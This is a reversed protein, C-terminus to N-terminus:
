GCLVVSQGMTELVPKCRDFVADEGGVMIALRGSIAGREGGSVPADLMHIGNAALRAAIQRTMVPNISSMDIVVADKKAGHIIGNPGFVVEEVDPSDSVMTIIIGTKEAVEKPSKAPTAGDRVIEDLPAKTRNFAVLTYGAKMINRAMPRGMIGLGIFGILPKTM